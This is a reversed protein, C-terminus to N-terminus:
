EIEEKRLNGFNFNNLDLDPLGTYANSDILNEGFKIRFYGNEGWEPGWSNEVIWFSIGNDEGWGVIKVAHGGLLEGHDYKYVGSKYHMFDEAMLMGTTLPGNNMIATQIEHPCKLHGSKGKEAKYKFYPIQSNLCRKKIPCEPQKDYTSDYSFCDETVVGTQELFEWAVDQKGGRCANNETNCSVMDQPSLEVKIQENSLICFRDSLTSSISFAWCSGCHGQHRPPRTCNPWQQRADFSKPINTVIGHELLELEMSFIPKYNKLKIQFMSKIESDTWERFPNEEPKYSEWKAKQRLDDHFKHHIINNAITVSDNIINNIIVILNVQSLLVILLMHKLAM